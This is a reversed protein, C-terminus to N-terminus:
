KPKNTVVPKSPGPVVVQKGGSINITADKGGQNPPVNKGSDTSKNVDTAPKSPNVPGPKQQGSPM